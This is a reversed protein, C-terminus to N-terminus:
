LIKELTITQRPGDFNSKFKCSEGNRNKELAVINDGERTTYMNIFCDCIRSLELTGAVRGLGGASGLGNNYGERNQQAVVILHVGLRTSVNKLEKVYKQLKIWHEMNYEDRESAIEGLHDIVVVKVNNCTAHEQILAMSTALTKPENGTIIINKRELFGVRAKRYSEANDKSRFKRNYIEDYTVGSAITFIRRALQKRNMEYNLYLIRGPFGNTAIHVVWNLALMSKGHGTPASIVNIDQLGHMKMDLLTMGTAPGDYENASREGTDMEAQIESVWEEPESVCSENFLFDRSKLIETSEQQLLNIVASSETNENLTNIAKNCLRSILRKSSFEKLLKCAQENHIPQESAYNQLGELIDQVRQQQSFRTKITIYDADGGLKFADQIESYIQQHINYYFDNTLLRDLFFVTETKYRMMASLIVRELDRDAFTASFMDSVIAEYPETM